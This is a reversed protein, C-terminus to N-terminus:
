VDQYVKYVNFINWVLHIASGILMAFFLGDMGLLFTLLLNVIIIISNGITNIPLLMRTKTRVLIITTLFLSVQFMGASLIAFPLYHSVIRYQEAVLLRFIVNHFVAGLATAILVMLFALLCFRIISKSVLNVRQKDIGDGARGFIIPMMLTLLSGGALSIPTFGVQFVASFYGVDKTSTFLELAWRQSAFFGWSMVGTVSMPWSYSWIQKSWSRGNDAELLHAPIMKRFFMYQSGLVLTGAMAYGVIAVTSTAGLWLMLCAAIMFRLWSDMGQHLAVISRQRAANQIGSLISNFGSLIAFILATTIIVIWETRGAILLGSAAFLIMFIIGGAALLVLRIVANLYSGLDGNEQAPAYYRTIGNGLPGLVTQGALTAVTLGLALEGYAVPDMIETFLRVGVISGVAAMAQGLVVWTGEKSLRCFRDSRLISLNLM